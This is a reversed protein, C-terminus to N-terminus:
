RTLARYGRLAALRVAAPVPEVLPVPFQGQLARAATALPGGGIVIAAAGDQVAEACASALADQLRAPDQMLAQPDGPTLRVGGFSAGHGYRAATGAIAAVLAPTTTVVAFRGHAAAEAMAAEAIGTVPVGLTRRLADLGPDGFAAVIVGSCGRVARPHLLAAVATAAATLAPEDTILAAGSQATAGEVAVGEPAAGRAVALMAATTAVNTNPNALLLRM